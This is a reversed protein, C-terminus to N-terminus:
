EPVCAEMFKKHNFRENDRAFVEALDEAISTSYSSLNNWELHIHYQLVKAIMEYDKKTM